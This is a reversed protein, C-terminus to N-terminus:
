MPGRAIMERQLTFMEDCIVINNVNKSCCICSSKRVIEAVTILNAYTTLTILYTMNCMTTITNVQLDPNSM